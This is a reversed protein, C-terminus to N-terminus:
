YLLAYGLKLFFTRDTQTLNINGVGFRDDTYGAFLVTQPNLKYSFLFQAFSQEQHAPTTPDLFLRPTQDLDLYQVILRVFTRVNFQYFMRVESQNATFLRGGPVDLTQLIHALQLNMHQGLRLQVGPNYQEIKALQANTFDIQDGFLGNFRLRVNGSPNIAFGIEQQDLDFTQGAFLTKQRRALVQLLSQYPGDLTGFVEVNRDLLDGGFNKTNNGRFGLSWRAYWDEEAGYFFREGYAAATKVDVRPLFGSDARFEPDLEQYSVFGKWDQAFHDYQLHFADGSFSDRNQGFRNAVVLPYRTDSTLYQLRVTDSSTFRAFGDIGGVHNYYGEGDRGTYLVGVSSARGLDRRYRIVGSKVKEDVSTNASGQSGPILITTVDDDAAFLSFANKGEKTNFKVGWDPDAVTRTFVAQLPTLYLDAGELFFPRKEPFFLAFRTNVALQATDAEVQSFDPNIALNLTANPTIGWRANLGPELEGDGKILGGDPFDQLSDTRLATLTPTLELNRGPKLGEFGTIKMEQCLICDKARDTYRSSIRYRVNRPYSRFAEFGWTQPGETRPFRLQQVPIAIEVTWGKDDIKAASNWIADWSFDDESNIESFVADVQVGVPNVRFQFGRREDNFPDLLIGVHDDQVFPAIADRDMLKGRIASPDPDFARFGVYLNKDDFTVYCLTDVPPKANDGPFWEYPLDFVLATKWVEEDLVGDVRIESAARTVEFRRIEASPAVPAAAAPETQATVPVLPALFAFAAAAFALSGLVRTRPTKKM